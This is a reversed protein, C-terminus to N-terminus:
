NNEKDEEKDEEKGFTNEHEEKKKCNKSPIWSTSQNEEYQEYISLDIGMLEKKSKRLVNFILFMYNWFYHDLKIHENYGDENGYYKNIGTRHLGCILCLNYKDEDIEGQSQRLASFNDIIIGAVMQLILTIQIIAFLNDLWFRTTVFLNDEGLDAIFFNIVGNSNKFTQDFVTFLCDLFNYCDRTPLQDPIFLYIFIVFYYEFLYFLFLTVILKKKPIWFSKIIYMLSRYRPIMEVLLFSFYLYNKFFFGFM